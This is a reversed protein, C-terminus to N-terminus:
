ESAADVNTSTGWRTLLSLLFTKHTNKEFFFRKGQENFEWRFVVPTWGLAL